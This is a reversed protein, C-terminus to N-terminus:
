GSAAAKGAAPGRAVAQGGARWEAMSIETRRARYGHKRLLAVTDAAYMCTPGRCYAIVERDQPVEALRRRLEAVPVSLAGPIHGAQYEDVPRADIVTVAEERVLRKLEQRTVPALADRRTFYLRSVQEIEALRLRAVAQLARLLEDVEDGALRYYIFAGDRRYEVLRAERLVRLHASTNKVPMGAQEALVEVRKEAQSLLEVLELRKPSALAAGVRAFQAYLPDKLDRPTM